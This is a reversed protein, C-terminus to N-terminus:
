RRPTPPNDRRFTKVDRGRVVLGVVHLVVGTLLIGVATYMLSRNGGAAGVVALVIGLLSLSMSAVVLKKYLPSAADWPTTIM